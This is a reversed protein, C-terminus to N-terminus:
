AEANPPFLASSPNRLRLSLHRSATGLGRWHWSPKRPPDLRECFMLVSVMAMAIFHGQPLLMPFLMIAWCSGVCWVGHELGMRLADWDAAVGFVALPRHDHCQNLCHQKIPSAQWLLAVLGAIAAPLYSQPALWIAAFEVAFLIGGAAMWIAGYGCAFLAISRARRQAFSSIWIHYIAPILMPAMMAVLMLLWGRALSTAPNLAFLMQLSKASGRVLCCSAVRPEVEGILIVIWAILSVLVVANRLRAYEKADYIM